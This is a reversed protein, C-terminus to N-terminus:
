GAPPLLAMGAVYSVLMTGLGVVLSRVIIRPASLYSSRAAIISTLCLSLVVAVIVAVTDLALPTATTILLPIGAGVAFALGSSIGALVPSRAPPNEDIGYETQLQAALPDAAHLQEAVERALEPSLGRQVYHAVLEALEDDPHAALQQQEYAVTALQADREAATEAWKAGGTSLAGAITAAMAATILLTDDAGAGAFGELLGATAIIGDNADVVWGQVVQGSIRARLRQWGTSTSEVAM